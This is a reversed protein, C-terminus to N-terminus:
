KDKRQTEHIKPHQFRPKRGDIVKKDQQHNDRCDNRSPISELTHAAHQFMQTCKTAHAEGIVQELRDYAAKDEATVSQFAISKDANGVGYENAKAHNDALVEEAAPPKAAM